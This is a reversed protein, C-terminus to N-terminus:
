AAVPESDSDDEPAGEFASGAVAQPQGDEDIVRVESPKVPVNLLQGHAGNHIDVTLPMVPHDDIRVVVARRGAPVDDAFDEVFEVRQGVKFGHGVEVDTLVETAPVNGDSYTGPKRKAAM